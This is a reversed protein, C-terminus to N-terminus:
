SGRTLWLTLAILLLFGCLCVGASRIALWWRATAHSTIFPVLSVVFGIVSTALFVMEFDRRGVLPLLSFGLLILLGLISFFVSAFHPDSRPMLALVSIYWQYCPTVLSNGRLPINLFGAPLSNCM